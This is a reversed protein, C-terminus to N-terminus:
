RSRRTRARGRSRPHQPPRARGAGVRPRAAGRVPVLLNNDKIQKVTNRSYFTEGRWNMLFAAIPEGPKRQAYYRWFLDRQTWHHSLDVWHSWNFWLAFGCRSRGLLHRVADRRARSRLALSAGAAGGVRSRSAWCRKLTSRSPRAARLLPDQAPAQAHARAALVSARRRGRAAGAAVLSRAPRTADPACRRTRGRLRRPSSLALGVLLARCVAARRASAGAAGRRGAAALLAVARAFRAPRDKRPSRRSSCTRRRPRAAGLAVLDGTACRGRRLVFAIPQTVLDSPIRATTTTSSSTPSTRRTARSTRASSCSAAAAGFILSVAHQASARRAVAPRHLAGILIALPPLM